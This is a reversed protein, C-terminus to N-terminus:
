ATGNMPYGMVARIVEGINSTGAKRHIASVHHSVTSPSICLIEAIRDYPDGMAYLLFVESERSSLSHRAIFRQFGRHIHQRPSASVFHRVLADNLCFALFRSIQRILLSDQERIQSEQTELFVLEGLHFGQPDQLPVAFPEPVSRTAKRDRGILRIVIPVASGENGNWTFLQVSSAGTGPSTRDYQVAGIRVEQEEEDGLVETSLNIVLAIPYRDFFVRRLLARFQTMWHELHFSTPLESLFTILRDFDPHVSGNLPEIRQRAALIGMERQIREGDKRWRQIYKWVMKDSRHISQAIEQVSASPNDHLEKLFESFARQRTSGLRGCYLELERFSLFTLDDRLETDAM